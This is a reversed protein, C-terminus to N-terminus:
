HMKRPFIEIRRLKMQYIHLSSKQHLSAVSTLTRNCLSAMNNNLTVPILHMLVTMTYNFNCNLIFFTNTQFKRMLYNNTEM